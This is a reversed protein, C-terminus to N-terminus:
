MVVGCCGFAVCSLVNYVIMQRVLEKLGMDLIVNANVDFDLLHNELGLKCIDTCVSVIISQSLVYRANRCVSCHGV